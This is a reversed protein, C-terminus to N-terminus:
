LVHIKFHAGWAIESSGHKGSESVAFDLHLDYVLENHAFESVEKLVRPNHFHAKIVCRACLLVVNSQYIIEHFYLVPM